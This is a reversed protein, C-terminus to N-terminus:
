TELRMLKALRERAWLDQLPWGVGKHALCVAGGYHAGYLAIHRCNDHVCRLPRECDIMRLLVQVETNRRLEVVLDDQTSM